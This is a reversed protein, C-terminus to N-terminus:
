RREPAPNRLQQLLARAQAAQPHEPDLRLSDELAQIALPTNGERAYDRGVFFLFQASHRSAQARDGKSSYLDALLRHTQMADGHEPDTALSEEATAIAEDMRNLRAYAQALLFLTPPYRGNLEMSRQLELVAQQPDGFELHRLALANHSLWYAPLLATLVEQSRGAEPIYARDIFALERTVNALDRWGLHSLPDRNIMERANARQDERIRRVQAQDRTVGVIEDLVENRFARQREGEPALDIAGDIERLAQAADGRDIAESASAGSVSAQFFRINAYWLIFGLGALAALAVGLRLAQTPDSAARPAPEPAQGELMRPLVALVGALMWFLTLDSVQALGALQEAFRGAMAAAIAVVALALWGQERRRWVQRLAWLATSGIAAFLGVVAIFGLWGLEVGAHLYFDHAHRERATSPQVDDALPYAALFM